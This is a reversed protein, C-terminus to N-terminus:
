GAFALTPLGTVSVWPEGRYTMDMGNVVTYVYAGTSSIDDIIGSYTTGGYAICEIDVVGDESPTWGISIQEWTDAAATMLTTTNVAPGGLQWQRAFLGFSLGTNSRRVWAKVTVAQGSKCAVQAVKYHLPYTAEANTNTVYFSWASGSATHRTTTQEQINGVDHWIKVVGSSNYNDTVIFFNNWVVWSGNFQSENSSTWNILRQSAVGSPSRDGIALGGTNYSSTLNLWTCPTITHVACTGNNNCTFNNFVPEGASTNMAGVGNNSNCHVDNLYHTGVNTQLGYNFSNNIVWVNSTTAFSGFVSYYFVLNGANAAFYGCGTVLIDTLGLFCGDVGLRYCRAFGLKSFNIYKTWQGTVWDTFGNQGDWISLAGADQTTMDTSNWGGSVIIPNAASGSKSNTFRDFEVASIPYAATGLRKHGEIRYTTVTETTGFYGKGASGLTNVGNDIKITTGNISQIPYWDINTNKGILSTLSLADDSTSDKCAIINDLYITLAGPDVSPANLSISKIASGLATGLDVTVPIWSVTSSCAPLNVVNVAITGATDSCLWLQLNGAAAIALNPFMWFSVQKYGSLDLTGTAFYSILGTTFGAAIVHKASKSGEKFQSTDATSTVNASATWATECTDINATVATTLTVTKSVNTWTATQGLSFPGPSKMIKFIDGAVATASASLLTKKRLAFTSGNNADNGGVPDVFYTTM